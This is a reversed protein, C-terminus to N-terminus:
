HGPEKRSEIDSCTEQFTYPQRRPVRRRIFWVHLFCAYRTKFVCLVDNLSINEKKFNVGNELSRIRRLIKKHKRSSRSHPYLVKLLQWPFIFKDHWRDNTYLPTSERHKSTKKRLRQQLEILSIGLYVNELLHHRPCQFNSRSQNKNQQKAVQM